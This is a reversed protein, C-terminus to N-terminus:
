CKTVGEDFGPLSQQKNDEDLIDEVLVAYGALDHWSDLHRPSAAIRVLKMVIPHLHEMDRAPMPKDNVEYYRNLIIEMIKVKTEVDGRYDGYIQGRQRLTDELM